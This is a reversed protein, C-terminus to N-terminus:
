KETGGRKAIESLNNAINGLTEGLMANTKHIETMAQRTNNETDIFVLTLQSLFVLYFGPITIIIMVAIGVKVGYESMLALGIFVAIAIIAWSVIEGVKALTFATKYSRAEM